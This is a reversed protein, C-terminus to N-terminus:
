DEDSPRAFGRVHGREYIRPWGGPMDSRANVIAAFMLDLVDQSIQIRLSPPQPPGPRAERRAIVDGLTTNGQLHVCLCSLLGGRAVSIRREGAERLAQRDVFRHGDEGQGDDLDAALRASDYGYERVMANKIRWLEEIVEDPM